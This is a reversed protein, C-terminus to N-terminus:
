GAATFRHAPVLTAPTALIRHSMGTLMAIANMQPMLGVAAKLVMLISLVLTAAFGAVLSNAIRSDM